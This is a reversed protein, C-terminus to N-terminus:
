LGRGPSSARRTSLDLPGPEFPRDLGPQLVPQLVDRRRVQPRRAGGGVANSNALMQNRRDATLAQVPQFGFMEFPEIAGHDVVPRLRGGGVLDM